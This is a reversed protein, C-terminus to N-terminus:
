SLGSFSFTGSENNQEKRNEIEIKRNLLDNLIGIKNMSLLQAYAAPLAHAKRVELFDEDSLNSLTNQDIQYLGTVTTQEEGIRITIDWPMILNHKSLVSCIHETLARNSNLLQLMKFIEDVTETLEGSPTFFEEGQGSDAVCATDICLTLTNEQGQVRRIDFPSSRYVVPMYNTLWRKDDSVLLNENPRLGMVVVLIFRDGEKIFAIPMSQLAEALENVFLPAVTDVKAFDLSTHRLWNKDRHMEHNIPVYSAM